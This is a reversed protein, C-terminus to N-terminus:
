SPLPQGEERAPATEDADDDDDEVEKTAKKQVEGKMEAVKDKPADPISEDESGM